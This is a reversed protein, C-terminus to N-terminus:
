NVERVKIGHFYMMMKRKLVFLQYINGRKCGKVDEVVTQGNEIYVFDAIYKLSREICKKGEYQAPILEYTKQWELNSIMGARQMLKLQNYRAGEKTSAFTIGDITVKRANMKNSSKIRM